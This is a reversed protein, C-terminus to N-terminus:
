NCANQWLYFDIEQVWLQTEEDFGGDRQDAIECNSYKQQDMAWKVAIADKEGQLKEHTYVNIQIRLRDHGTWGKVTNLPINSIGQYTIYTTSRDFGEPLPHPGVNDNFPGKLVEYIIESVLM